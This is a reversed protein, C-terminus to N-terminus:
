INASSVSLFLLPFFTVCCRSIYRLTTLVSPFINCKLWHVVVFLVGFLNFLCLFMFDSLSSCSHLVMLPLISVRRRRRDTKLGWPSTCSCKVQWCPARCPKWRFVPGTVLPLDSPVWFLLGHARLALCLRDVEASVCSSLLSLCLLTWTRLSHQAVCSIHKHYMYVDSWLVPQDVCVCVVLITHTTISSFFPLLWLSKVTSILIIRTDRTLLSINLSSILAFVFYLFEKKLYFCLPLANM